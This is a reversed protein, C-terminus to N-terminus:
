MPRLNGPRKGTSNILGDDEERGKGNFNMKLVEEVFGVQLKRSM